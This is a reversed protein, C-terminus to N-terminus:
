WYHSAIDVKPNGVMQQEEDECMWEQIDGSLVGECGPILKSFVSATAM